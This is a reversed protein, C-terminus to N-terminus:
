VTGVSEIIGVTRGPSRTSACRISPPSTCRPSTTTKVSEMHLSEGMTLRTTPMPPSVTLHQPASPPSVTFPVASSSGYASVVTGSVPRVMGGPCAGGGPVGKSTVTGSPFRKRSPSRRAAESSERAWRCSAPCPVTGRDATLARTSARAQGEM